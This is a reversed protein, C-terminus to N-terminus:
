TEQEFLEYASAPVSAACAPDVQGADVLGDLRDDGLELTGDRVRDGGILELLRAREFPRNTSPRSLGCAVIM